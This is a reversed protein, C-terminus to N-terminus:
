FIGFKYDKIEGKKVLVFSLLSLTYLLFIKLSGEKKWRRVSNFCFSDIIKSKGARGLRFSLDLDECNVFNENFGGLKFFEEKKCALCITPIITMDIKKLLNQTIYYLKLLFNHLINGDFTKIEPGCVVISDALFIHNIKEVFRSELLTDADLFVLIEGKAIEVGRNRAFGPGKRDCEIIKNTYKGAIKLTNDQSHSDVIIIEYNKYTQRKISKLTDEIWKEENLTPIIFSILQKKM